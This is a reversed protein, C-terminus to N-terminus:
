KLHEAQGIAGMPVVPLIRFFYEEGPILGSVTGNFEGLGIPNGDNFSANHEWLSQDSGHDARGYYLYAIPLNEDKSTLEGRITVTANEEPIIELIEITPPRPLASTRFEITGDLAISKIEVASLGRDYIRVEDALGDFHNGEDNTGIRVDLVNGTNVIYDMNGAYPNSPNLSGSLGFKHALYGEIFERDTDGLATKFVVFDGFRHGGGIKINESSSPLSAWLGNNNAVAFGNGYMRSTGNVGDYVVTIIKTQSRADTVSSGNCKFYSSGDQAYWVGTGQNAGTNFKGIWFSPQQVWWGGSGKWFMKDGTNTNLWDVVFTVSLAGLQDFDTSSNLIEMSAGNTNIGEFEFNLVNEYVPNGSLITAHYGNGSKDSWFQVNQGIAPSGLAGAFSGQDMSSADTSDYWIAPNLSNPTLSFVSSQNNDLDGDIFIACDNLLPSGNPVTVALHRWLDDNISSNGYIESGGIDLKVRGDEISVEWKEGDADNGWSILSANADSTKIWFSITRASSGLVGKYGKIVVHGGDGEFRISKGEFGFM